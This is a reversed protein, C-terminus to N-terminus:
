KNMKIKKGAPNFFDVEEIDIYTKVTRTGGDRSEVIIESNGSQYTAWVQDLTVATFTDGYSSPFRGVHRLSTGFKCMTTRLFEQITMEPAREVKILNIQKNVPQVKYDGSRYPWSLPTKEDITFIDQRKGAIDVWVNGVLVSNKDLPKGSVSNYASFGKVYMRLTAKDFDPVFVRESVTYENSAQIKALSNDVAYRLGFSIPVMQKLPISKETFKKMAELGGHIVESQYENDGGLVTVKLDSSNLIKKYEFELEPDVSFSKGEIAAMAYKLAGQVHKSDDDTGLTFFLMRGYSINSVYMPQMDDMHQKQIRTFITEGIPADMTVTYFKQICKAVVFSKNKSFDLNLNSAFDGYKSKVVAGLKAMFERANSIKEVSATTTVAPAVTNVNLMEGLATQYDSMRINMCTAKLRNQESPNVAQLDVSFTIPGTEAGSLISYTADAISSGRLACGPYLIDAAPNFLVAENFAADLRYRRTTTVWRGPVGNLSTLEGYESDEGGVVVPGEGVNNEETAGTVRFVGKPDAKTKLYAQVAEKGEVIADDVKTNEGGLVDDNNCSTILPLSMAALAMSVFFISKKM